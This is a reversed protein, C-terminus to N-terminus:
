KSYQLIQRDRTALIRGQTRTTAILFRDAADGHTEGPLLTSEVAALADLPAFYIGPAALARDV